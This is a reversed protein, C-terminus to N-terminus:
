QRPPRQGRSPKPANKVEERSLFGDNNTDVKSFSKLLRGKVETKSLRNDGDQDMKFIEDVSPQKQSKRNNTTRNEKSQSADKTNNCALLFITLCVSIILVLLRM